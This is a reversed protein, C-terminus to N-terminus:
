SRRWCRTTASRARVIVLSGTQNLTGGIVSSGKQKTVPMSEGTVMSEDVSGAGSSCRAM